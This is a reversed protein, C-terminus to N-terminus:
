FKVGLPLPRANLPNRPASHEAGFPATFRLDPGVIIRGTGCTPVSADPVSPAAKVPCDVRDIRYVESSVRNDPSQAYASAASLSLLLGFIFVNAAIRM